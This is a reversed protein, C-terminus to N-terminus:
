EEEKERCARGVVLVVVARELGGDALKDVLLDLGVRLEVLLVSLPRGDLEDLLHSRHVHVGHHTGRGQAERQTGSTTRLGYRGEEVSDKLECLSPGV